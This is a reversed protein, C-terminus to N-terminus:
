RGIEVPYLCTDGMLAFRGAILGPCNSRRKWVSSHAVRSADALALPAAAADFRIPQLSASRLARRFPSGLFISSAQSNRECVVIGSAHIASRSLMPVRLCRAHNSCCRPWLRSVAGASWRRSLIHCDRNQQLVGWEQLHAFIYSFHRYNKRALKTQLRNSHDPFVDSTTKKVTAKKGSLNKLLILRM